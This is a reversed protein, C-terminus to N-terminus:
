DFDIDYVYMRNPYDKALIYIGNQPELVFLGKDTLIINLAHHGDSVGAWPNKNNVYIKAIPLQRTIPYLADVSQNLSAVDAFAKFLLAFNDCDFGERKWRLFQKAFERISNNYRVFSNHTPVEFTRDAIGQNDWRKITPFAEIVLARLESNDMYTQASQLPVIDIGNVNLDPVFPIDIERNVTDVTTLSAFLLLTWLALFALFKNRPKLNKFKSLISM